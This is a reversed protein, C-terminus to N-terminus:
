RFKFGCDRHFYAKIKTFNRNELLNPQFILRRRKRFSKHTKNMEEFPNWNFNVCRWFGHYNWELAMELELPSLDFGSGPAWFVWIKLTSRKSGFKLPLNYIFLLPVGHGLKILFVRVFYNIWPELPNYAKGRTKLGNSVLEELNILHSGFELIKNGVGWLIYPFGIFIMWLGLFWKKLRM